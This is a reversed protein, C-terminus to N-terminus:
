SSPSAAVQHIRFSTWISTIVSGMLLYVGAHVYVQAFVGFKVAAVIIAAVYIEAMSLKSLMDIARHLRHLLRPSISELYWVTAELLIKATPILVSFVLVVLFLSFEGDGWLVILSSYISVTNEFLMFKELTMFPTFVGAVFLIMSSWLSASIDLPRSTYPATMGALFQRSLPDSGYM